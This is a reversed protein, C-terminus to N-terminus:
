MCLVFKFLRVTFLVIVQLAAGKLIQIFFNFTFFISIGLIKLFLLAAVLNLKLSTVSDCSPGLSCLDEVLTTNRFLDM